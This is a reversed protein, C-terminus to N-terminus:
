LTLALKGCAASSEISQHAEIAQGLPSLDARQVLSHGNAGYGRAALADDLELPRAAPTIQFCPTLGDKEYINEAKSFGQPLDKGSWDAALVSNARRTVGRDLRCRWGDLNEVRAPPWAREASLDLDRCGSAPGQWTMATWDKEMSVIFGCVRHIWLCSSVARGGSSGPLVRLWMYSLWTEWPLTVCKSPIALCCGSRFEPM